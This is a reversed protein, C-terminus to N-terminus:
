VELVFSEIHNYDSGVNVCMFGPVIEGIVRRHTHGCVVYRDKNGWNLEHLLDKMGSYFSYQSPEHGNLKEHPVHHTCLVNPLSDSMNSSIKDVYYQNWEKYFQEVGPIYWDNWGDWDTVRQKPSIAMSGDFFLMGGVFNVGNLVVSGRIDLFYVNDDPMRQENLLRLTWKFGNGWLEHNGLTTIVPIDNPIFTRLFGSLLTVHQPAVIDGTIVVVDPNAEKVVAALEGTYKFKRETPNDLADMVVLPRVHLDSLCLVRM